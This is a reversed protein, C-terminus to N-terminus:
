STKGRSIKGRLDLVTSKEVALELALGKIKSSAVVEAAVARELESKLRRIEKASDEQKLLKNEQKLLSVAKNAQKRSEESLTLKEQTKELENELDNVRDELLNVATSPSPCDPDDEDEDGL